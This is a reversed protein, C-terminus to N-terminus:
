MGIGCSPLEWTMITCVVFLDTVIQFLSILGIKAKLAIPKRSVKGCAMRNLITPEKKVFSSSGKKVMVM